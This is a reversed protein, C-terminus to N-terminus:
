AGTPAPRRPPERDEGFEVAWTGRAPVPLPPLDLLGFRPTCVWYFPANRARLILLVMEGTEGDEVGVQLYRAEDERLFALAQIRRRLTPFGTEALITRSAEWCIEAEEPSPAFPLFFKM